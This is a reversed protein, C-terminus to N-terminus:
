GFRRPRLALRWERLGALYGAVEARLVGTREGPPVALEALTRRLLHKPLTLAARRLNGRHRHNAFQVYLAAVHGRM